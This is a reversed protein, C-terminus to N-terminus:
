HWLGLGRFGHVEGYFVAREWCGAADDARYRGVAASLAAEGLDRYVLGFDRAPDVIAADSWDLVGTVTWTVPDILVHEIGLDNHSFVLTDGGHPLPAELFAEIQRRYAAPVREAVTVYTQAAERRWEALPQDDTDVLNAWREVPEAHLADLLDGLRGAISAGHESRPGPPVELLPVGALKFYALCGHEAATFVPEPM